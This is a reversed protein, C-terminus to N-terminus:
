TTKKYTNTNEVIFVNKDNPKLGALCKGINKTNLQSKM